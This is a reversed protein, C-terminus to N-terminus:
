YFSGVYHPQKNKIKLSIIEQNGAHSSISPHTCSPRLELANAISNRWEQVFGDIYQRAIDLNSGDLM